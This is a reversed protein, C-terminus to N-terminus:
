TPQKWHREITVVMNSDWDNAYGLGEILKTMVTDVPARVILNAKGDYPTAQLNVIVFQKALTPLSGAPEIRLSTGLALVLDAM